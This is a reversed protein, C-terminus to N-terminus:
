RVDAAAGACLQLPGSGEAAQDPLDAQILGLQASQAEEEAGGGAAAAAAGAAAASERTCTRVAANEPACKLCGLAPVGPGM